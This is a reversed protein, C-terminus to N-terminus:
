SSGFQSMKDSILNPTALTLLMEPVLVKVDVVWSHQTLVAESTKADFKAM